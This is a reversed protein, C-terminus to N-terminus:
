GKLKFLEECSKYPHITRPGILIEFEMNNNTLQKDNMSMGFITKTIFSFPLM